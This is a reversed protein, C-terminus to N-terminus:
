STSIVQGRHRGGGQQLTNRLGRAMKGDHITEEAGRGASIAV